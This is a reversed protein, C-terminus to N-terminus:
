WLLVGALIVTLVLSAGIVAYSSTRAPQLAVGVHIDLLLYRIGALLHHMLAWLLGFQVLKLFPHALTARVADFSEASALSGDLFYLLFFTLVFLLAGSIRHLISVVAPVPLNLLNLNYWLPRKRKVVADPM